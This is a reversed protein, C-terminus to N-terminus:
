APLQDHVRLGLSVLEAKLDAARRHAIILWWVTVQTELSGDVGDVVAGHRGTVESVRAFGGDAAREDVQVFV